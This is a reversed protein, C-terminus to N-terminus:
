LKMRLVKFEVRGKEVAKKIAKEEKTLSSEGTKVDLFIIKISKGMGDKLESYGDFIVYDIPSGLFRADAPNYSFDRLLPALQEAIKGKLVARSKELIDKRLKEKLEEFRRNALIEISMRLKLIYILLIAIVFLLLEVLM